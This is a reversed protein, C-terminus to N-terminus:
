AEILYDMDIPAHHHRVAQLFKESERYGLRNRQRRAGSIQKREQKTIRKDYM